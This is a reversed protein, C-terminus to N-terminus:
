SVWRKNDWDYEVWSIILDESDYVGIERDWREKSVIERNIMYTISGDEDPYLEGRLILKNSGDNNLEVYLYVEGSVDHTHHRSFYALNNVLDFPYPETEHWTYIRNDRVSLICSSLITSVSDGDEEYVSKLYFSNLILEPVGDKNMDYIAYRSDFIPVISEEVSDEYFTGNNYLLENYLVITTAYLDSTNHDNGKVSQVQKEIETEEPSLVCFALSLTLLLILFGKNMM